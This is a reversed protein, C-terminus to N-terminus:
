RLYVPCYFAMLVWICKCIFHLSQDIHIGYKGECKGFDIIWHAIIELTGLIISGTIFAVAGGHIMSHATMAYPWLCSLDANSNYISHRNKMKAIESSQAWFDAVAHGVLLWWLMILANM